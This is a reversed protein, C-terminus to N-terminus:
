LSTKKYIIIFKDSYQRKKIVELSAFDSNLYDNDVECVIIGEDNILNNNIIFLIIENLCTMKYPPDLFIIDFKQNDTVLKNLLVKYDLNFVKTQEQINFEEINKQIIKVCKNNKDNFYCMKAGNSIAELGLNGSGAFLDLCISKKVYEQIMGFLSEKVRDMTPRTGEIDYGNIKRGKLTGSIIKM